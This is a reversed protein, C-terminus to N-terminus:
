DIVFREATSFMEETCYSITLTSYLDYQNMIHNIEGDNLSLINNVSIIIAIIQIEAQEM